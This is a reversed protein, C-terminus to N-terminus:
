TTSNEFERQKVINGNTWTQLLFFANVKTQYFKMTFYIESSSVNLKSPERVLSYTLSITNSNELSIHYIERFMEVMLFIM